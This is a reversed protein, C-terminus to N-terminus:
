KIKQKKHLHSFARLQTKQQCFFFPPLFIFFSISIFLRYGGAEYVIDSERSGNRSFFVSHPNLSELLQSSSCFLTFFIYFIYLSPFDLDLRFALPLDLTAGWIRHLRQGGKLKAKKEKKTKAM